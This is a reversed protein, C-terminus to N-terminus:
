LVLLSIDLQYTVPPITDLLQYLPLLLPTPAPSRLTPSPM